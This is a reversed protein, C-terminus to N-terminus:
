ALYYAINFRVTLTQKDKETKKALGRGIPTSSVVERNYTGTGLKKKLTSLMCILIEKLM